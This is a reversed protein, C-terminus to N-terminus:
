SPRPPPRRALIGSMFIERMTDAVDDGTEPRAYDFWYFIWSCMGIAAFASYTPDLDSRCSGVAQMERIAERVLAFGRRWVAHIEAYHGPSLRRAETVLVRASPDRTMLRAYDTLFVRLREDPEKIREAKEIIPVLRRDMMRRHVAHLIGEKSDFHHYVGAKTMGLREAILSMPTNDYGRELILAAVVDSARDLFHPAAEAQAAAGAAEAATASRDVRGRGEM